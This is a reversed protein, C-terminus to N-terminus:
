YILKKRENAAVLLLIDTEAFITVFENKLQTYYDREKKFAIILTLQWKLFAAIFQWYSNMTLHSMEM